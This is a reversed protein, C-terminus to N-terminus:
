NKKFIYIGEEKKKDVGNEQHGVAKRTQLKMDIREM